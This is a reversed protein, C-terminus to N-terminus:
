TLFVIAFTIALVTHFSDGQSGKLVDCLGFCDRRQIGKNRITKVWFSSRRLVKLSQVKM